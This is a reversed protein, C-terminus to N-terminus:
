AFYLVAIFTNLVTHRQSGHSIYVLPYSAMQNGAKCIRLNERASIPKFGLGFTGKEAHVSGIPFAVVGVHM